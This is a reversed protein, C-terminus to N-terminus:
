RQYYSPLIQLFCDNAPTHKPVSYRIRWTCKSCTVPHISKLDRTSYIDMFFYAANPNNERKMQYFVNKILGTKGM